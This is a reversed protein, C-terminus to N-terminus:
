IENYGWWLTPLVVVEEDTDIRIGSGDGGIVHPLPTPYQGCRVWVDHGNVASCKAKILARRCRSDSRSLDWFPSQVRGRVGFVRGGANEGEAKQDSLEIM